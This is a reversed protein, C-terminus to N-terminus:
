IQIVLEPKFEDNEIVGNRARPGYGKPNCVVRTHGAMYDCSTHTHGHVWLAAGSNEVLESLDSCFAPTVPDDAFRLHVSRPHLTFRDIGRTGECLSLLRRTAFLGGTSIRAHQQLILPNATTFPRHSTDTEQTAM